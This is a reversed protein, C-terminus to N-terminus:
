ESIKPSNINGFPVLTIKFLLSNEPELESDNYFERRYVLGAKLCDNIYEYSLNYFEASSTILNRKTEFSLLGNDRNKIDIKTKFYDQNGIHKNEQLYNFNFEVNKYDLITGIENYNFDSYNEDISFDYSLNIKNNLKYNASGVLDSLKENLSTIDAMKKNEKENIIQALSFDFKTDQKKIEYDLGLTASLGTEYNSINSMRNISFADTPTLRQGETAKRMSGPSYRMLMKPTLFHKSNYKAKEFEIKSLFGLSGFFENTPENKYLEINKTDYNINKFNGLINSSLGSNFNIDKSTWNFDNVFFSSAKNTDYNHFKLNSQLDVSGIKESNFLIKDFTIEPLIYEYKDEYSDKLSEYVSANLGIFTDDMERTFNLSSELSDKNYDALNSKIRYLKLYKDNSVDQVSLSFSNNSNKKGKFNKVFKSFLHSKQGPKKSASTNQYGKTFGFDAFFSSNKYVKHFEGLHLPNESAFLRNTFTFNKDRGLNFFYPVSLSTGLNKTDGFTPPLFGSRRSVSPDPHSLRPIYFIPVNYVKIIANDYYITKKKNDHLMKSSQITWPPCKDNKRHGCLTFISKEFSSKDKTLKITNSFIRPNNNKNEKFNESNLFAKTDTGLIEKKKTDIYVQSFEYVNSTKDKIKISGISKFINDILLYEFNDLYIKNNDQDKLISPKNSNIIKSKNDIIIDEGDLLYKESTEINTLGISKFIQNRENYEAYNTRITNNNIDKVIINNKIILLGTKKNYKVYDSKITKDKTKVVVENKFISTVKDKDISINKAEISINETSGKSFFLISFIIILIKSKM